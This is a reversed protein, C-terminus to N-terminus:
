NDCVVRYGIAVTIMSAVVAWAYGAVKWRFHSQRLKRQMEANTANEIQVAPEGDMPELTVHRLPLITLRVGPGPSGTSFKYYDQMRKCYVAIVWVWGWAGVLLPLSWLFFRLPRMSKIHAWILTATPYAQSIEWLLSLVAATGFLVCLWFMYRLSNTRINAKVAQREVRAV